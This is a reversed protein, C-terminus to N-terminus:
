NKFLYIIMHRKYKIMHIKSIQKYCYCILLFNKIETKKTKSLFSYINPDWKIKEMTTGNISVVNEFTKMLTLICRNENDGLGLEGYKNHGFVLIEGIKKLIFTHFGGCIIQNINEDKMVFKPVCKNKLNGLGLQEDDGCGFGFLECSEKLIFTHSAGCVIQRIKENKM